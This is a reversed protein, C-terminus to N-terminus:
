IQHILKMSIHTSPVRRKGYCYGCRLVEQTVCGVYPLSDFDDFTPLRDPGIVRDIEEQGKQQVEPYCLMGLLFTELSSWTKRIPEITALGAQSFLLSVTEAGAGFIVGSSGKIDGIEEDTLTQGSAAELQDLLFSPQATGKAQRFLTLQRRM